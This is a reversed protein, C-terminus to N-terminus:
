DSELMKLKKDYEKVKDDHQASKSALDTYLQEISAELAKNDKPLQALLAIDKDIAAKILSENNKEVQEEVEFINQELKQIEKKLSNLVASREQIIIAKQKKKKEFDAKTKPVAPIKIDLAEDAWGKQEIFDQYGGDFFYTGGGDFIILKEALSYLIHEDHSVMIVSGDFERIAEILAECSQMDLHNTPEDLLLLHSPRALIKGLSVRAKEGGSLVSIPKLADDGAFMMAGAIGRARQPLCGPVSM